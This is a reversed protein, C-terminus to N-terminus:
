GIKLLNLSYLMLESVRWALTDDSINNWISLRSTGIGDVSDTSLEASNLNWRTWIIVWNFVSMAMHFNLRIISIDIAESKGCGLNSFQVIFTDFCYYMSMWFNDFICEPKSSWSIQFKYASDSARDIKNTVFVLRHKRQMKIVFFIIM